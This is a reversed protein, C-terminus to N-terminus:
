PVAFYSIFVYPTSLHKEKQVISTTHVPVHPTSLPPRCSKGDGEVGRREWFFDFYLLSLALMLFVTRDSENAPRM